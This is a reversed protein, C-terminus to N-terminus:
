LLEAQPDVAVGLVLLLLGLVILIAALERDVVTTEPAEVSADGGTRRQLSNRFAVGVGLVTCLAGVSYLGLAAGRRASSGTVLALLLGLAISGLGAGVVFVAFRRAAAAIV